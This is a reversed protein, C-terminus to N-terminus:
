FVKSQERVPCRILAKEAAFRCACATRLWAYSGVLEQFARLQRPCVGGSDQALFFPRSVGKPLTLVFIEATLHGRLSCLSFKKLNRDIDRSERTYRTCVIKM